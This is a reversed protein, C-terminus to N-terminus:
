GGDEGATWVNNSRDVDPLRHDPDIEVRVVPSPTSFELEATRHGALWREVPVERQLRLGDELTIRLTVPMPVWGRDALRITVERRGSEVSTVAQDLPWSEYYWSRWFWSLDRDAVREFTRFFDWPYPHKWRWERLFTGLAERFTEEGVLHRLAVLVASPEDYNPVNGARPYQYDMWRMMPVGHGSRALEAYDRMDPLHARQGAFFEIRAENEHFTTLGEDMWAYRKEDTAVQMPVWMHALEHATVYYLASDGRANYDGMLTMMPYEMGGGIIGGGEVATMHPWPYPVGTYRSLFDIAHRSYRWVESWNPASSRWLAEVRTYDTEGDGDRDGVPTRAADWRASRTASFAFDRVTDARFRWTLSDDPADVTATGPGFEGEGLVHVVSDSSGARELRSRIEPPLVADPNELRGTARVVWGEPLTVSVDYSGFGMHFEARGLYPDTQWGVVDDHVAMQPYWYGLYFLDEEWGMRGAGSQPVTFGYDVALTVTEGPAVPTPPRVEMVTADVTYGPGEEPDRELGTGGVAVRHLEVGGTVEQPENRITGEAHLNQHLHVYLARLTDPSRNQYRIEASGELRKEAPRLTARIRYDTWPQWYDPGPSGDETRTGARVAEAYGPEVVVPDPEPREQAPAPSAGVLLAAAALGGVALVRLPPPCPSMPPM